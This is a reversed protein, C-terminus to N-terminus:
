KFNFPVLTKINKQLLALWHKANTSVGEKYKVTGRFIMERTGYSILSLTLKTFANDINEEMWYREIIWIDGHWYEWLLWENHILHYTQNYFFPIIYKEYLERMDLWENNHIMQYLDQPACFCCTWDEYIHSDKWSQLRKKHDIIKVKIESESFIIRIIYDAHCFTNKIKNGVFLMRSKKDWSHAIKVIGEFCWENDISILQYKYMDLFELSTWRKIKM